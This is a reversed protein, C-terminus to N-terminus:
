RGSPRIMSRDVNAPDDPRLRARSRGTTMNMEIQLGDPPLVAGDPVDQWERTPVFAPANVRRQHPELHDACWNGEPGTLCAALECGPQDCVVGNRRSPPTEATVVDCTATATAKRPNRDTVVSESTVSQKGGFAMTETAQSTTVAQSPPDQSLYRKWSAEFAERMYGKTTTSTPKADKAGTGYPPPLPPPVEVRITQSSIGFPRLLNALQNQTIPGGRHYEAWPRGELGSLHATLHGSPARDNGTQDFYDRLDSLLLEAIAESDTMDETSLAVAATRAQLPWDGGACDAIAVPMRWNDAQRDNLVSPLQPNAGRLADLNDAAWRTVRSALADFGLDVDDRLRDVREGRPKRKLRITISRDVWTVPLAVNSAVVTPAWCSFSRVVLEGNVPVTRIVYADLKCHGANVVAKLEGAKEPDVTDFEDVLLVLDGGAAEILRFTAAATVSSAAVKRGVLMGIVRLLSSKGCRHVPSRVALRPSHFAAAHARAFLVWLAVALAATPSLVIFRRIQAVIDSLLEAGDVPEPWPEIEPLEIPSGQGSPGEEQPQAAKVTADLMAVRVGLRKAEAKRVREYEHPPLAALRAVEVAFEGLTDYGDAPPISGFDPAADDSM